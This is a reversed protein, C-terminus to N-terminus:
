TNDKICEAVKIWVQDRESGSMISLPKSPPNITQFEALDTEKFLCPRLIVCLITMKGSNAAALMYPLEHNVIFDSALFHASVLLVAMKSARLAANIEERWVAGPKIERDDWCVVKNTRIYPALHVRLEELYNRDKHSYSIFVMVPSSPQAQEPTSRSSPENQLPLESSDQRQSLDARITTGSYQADLKGICLDVFSIHLNEYALRNLQEVIQARDSRTQETSGYRGEWYLNDRLRAEYLACEVQWSTGRARLTIQELGQEYNM